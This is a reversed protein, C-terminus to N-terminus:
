KEVKEIRKVSEVGEVKQLKTMLTQLDKTSHVYIDLNNDFLGNESQANFTRVNIRMDESIIKVLDRLIGLRDIGRIKIRALFYLTKHETWKTNVLKNGHQSAENLANACHKKHIVVKNNSQLFGIVNDGPIPQCCKAARYTLTSPDTDEKLLFTRKDISTTKTNKHKTRKRTGFLQLEVYRLFKSRRQKRVAKEIKDISLIGAGIKSFLEEKNNVNYNTTIRKYLMANPTLHLKKLVDEVSQKGKQFHKKTENKIATIIHSRARSTAVFTLWVAEPKKNDATLVEVQDGSSLVYNLPVLKHNVKAGIARNGIETHIEYAFDLTTAKNPLCIIKGKPTYVTIESSFLNLRFQDLFDTANQENDALMERIRVLWNDLASDLGAEDVINTNAQEKYNWHAAYGREAIENMRESRIQLEVWRGAPGMVTTHLAEYGNEKPSSIWDRLRENNPKYIDTILSYIQWCEQKEHVGVKPKFVIRVAFLDYIENFAVQKAQMKSWISYASKVRGSIDFSFEHEVLKQQIPAIFDNIYKEREKASHSLSVQLEEYMKPYQYKMTLDELESKINYLGLRHALPAYLYLTECAIKEQKHPAMSGLTRMNHLRDALKILVVRIDDAMALLLRRFNEAQLSVNSDFITDLKTLGTVLFSIKEGFLGEIDESTYETDEIVDHLIAASIAKYGLGIEHAVIKAVAIPHTIYPEGSKRRTGKHAEYALNFAKLMVANEEEKFPRLSSVLMDDFIQRCKERELDVKTSM